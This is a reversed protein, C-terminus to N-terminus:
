YEFVFIKYCYWIWLIEYFSIKLDRKQYFHPRISSSNFSRSPLPEFGTTTLHKEVRRDNSLLEESMRRSTKISTVENNQDKMQNSYKQYHEKHLFNM